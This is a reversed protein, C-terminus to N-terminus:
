WNNRESINVPECFGVLLRENYDIHDFHFVVKEGIRMHQYSNAKVPVLARLNVADLNIGYFRPAKFNDRAIYAIQGIFGGKGVASEIQRLFFDAMDMDLPARSLRMQVKKNEHDVEISQVVADFQDGPLFDTMPNCWKTIHLQSRNMVVHAGHASVLLYDRYTRLVSCPVVDGPKVPDRQASPSFFHRQLLIEEAVWRNGTIMYLRLYDGSITTQTKDLSSSAKSILFPIVAGISKRALKVREEAEFKSKNYNPLQLEASESVRKIRAEEERVVFDEMPIYIPFDLYSVVVCDPMKDTARIVGSVTAYCITKNEQLELIRAYNESMSFAIDRIKQRKGGPLFDKNVPLRNKDADGLEKIGEAGVKMESVEVVFGDKEESTKKIVNKKSAPTGEKTDKKKKGIAM